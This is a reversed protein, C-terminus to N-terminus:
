IERHNFADAQPVIPRDWCINALHNRSVSDYYPGARNWCTKLHRSVGYDPGEYGM